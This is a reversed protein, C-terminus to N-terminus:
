DRIPHQVCSLMAQQPALLLNSVCPPARVQSLVRRGKVQLKDMRQEKRQDNRKFATIQPGLCLSMYNCPDASTPQLSFVHAM